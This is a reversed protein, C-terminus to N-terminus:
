SRRRSEIFSDMMSFAHRYGVDWGTSYGKNRADEVLTQVWEPLETDSM